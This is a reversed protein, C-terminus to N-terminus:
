GEFDILGPDFGDDDTPYSTSIADSVVVPWSLDSESVKRVLVTSGEFGASLEVGEKESRWYFPTVHTPLSHVSSLIEFGTKANFIAPWADKSFRWFDWPDDHIGLTQHTHVLGLAGVKLVKNLELSFKWPMLIHEVVSVSVFADFHNKPFYDSLQHADGVVDVNDGDLIDFVILDSGPYDSSRDIKSRNRGGIDIVKSDRIEGVMSKFLKSVDASENTRSFGERNLDKVPVDIVRGDDLHFRLIMGYPFTEELLLVNASFGKDTGLNLVGSHYQGVEVTTSKVLNDLVEISKLSAEPSHLWGSLKVFGYFKAVRDLAIEVDDFRM